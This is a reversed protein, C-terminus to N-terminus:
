FLAAFAQWYLSKSHAALMLTINDFLIELGQRVCLPKM